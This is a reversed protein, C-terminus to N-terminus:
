SCQLPKELLNELMDRSIVLRPRGREGSIFTPVSFACSRHDSHSGGAISSLTSVVSEILPLNNEMGPVADVLTAMLRHVREAKISLADLSEVSPSGDDLVRSLDGILSQLHTVLIDM